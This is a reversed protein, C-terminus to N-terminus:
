KKEIEFAIFLTRQSKQFNNDSVLILSQNGSPLQPGIAMGEINDLQHPTIEQLYDDLNAILKKAVPFLKKQLKLSLKEIKSVDSTEPTIYCEFIRINNKKTAPNWARELTYFHLNDILAIDVLGNDIDRSPMEDLIYFFENKMKLKDYSIIRVAGPISDHLLPEEMGMFLYKGDPTASLAEFSKNEMARTLFKKPVANTRIFSGKKSFQYLEPHPPSNKKRAGESSILVDDNILTIGEFDIEDKKFFNGKKNKLFFINKPVLTFIKETLTLEFEYFRANNVESRDDTVALINKTKHNYVIGSFGGIETQQFKEGTAFNINGIFRLNNKKNEAHGTFPIIAILFIIQFYYLLTLGPWPLM